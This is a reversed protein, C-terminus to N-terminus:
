SEVLKMLCVQQSAQSMDLTSFTKGGKLSTFLDEIKPILYKDVKCIQNVTRKFDGCIKVSKKDSKLVPVIPAVWDSFTVPTLIGQQVLRDIEENVLSKYAYPLTRAKCFKPAANPDMIIQAEYGVLTGLGGEFM